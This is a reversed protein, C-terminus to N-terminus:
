EGRPEEILMYRRPATSSEVLLLGGPLVVTQRGMFLAGLMRACSDYDYGFAMRAAVLQKGLWVQRPLSHTAAALLRLAEARMADDQAQEEAVQRADREPGTEIQQAIERLQEALLKYDTM